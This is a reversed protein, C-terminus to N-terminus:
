EGRSLFITKYDKLIFYIVKIRLVLNLQKCNLLQKKCIISYKALRKKIRTDQFNNTMNSEHRRYYAINDKCFRIKGINAMRIWTHYEGYNPYDSLEPYGSVEILAAKKIILGPVPIKNSSILDTLNVDRHLCHPEKDFVKGEGDILYYDNFVMVTNVDFLRLANECHNIDLIDDQDLIVVYDGAAVSLGRNVTKCFGINTQNKLSRVRSDSQELERAVKVSNDTSGDDIIIVEVECNIQNLASLVTEQLYKEGNYTAIIFSVM